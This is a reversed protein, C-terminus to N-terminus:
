KNYKLWRKMNCLPKSNLHTLSIIPHLDACVPLCACVRVSTSLFSWRGLICICKCSPVLICTSLWVAIINFDNPLFLFCFLWLFNLSVRSLPFMFTAIHFGYNQSKQLSNYYTIIVTLWWVEVNFIIRFFILCLM